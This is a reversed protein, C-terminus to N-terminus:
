ALHDEWPNRVAVGARAFPEADRTVVTLEHHLAIAAIVLDPQPYTYGSRRGDQELAKWLLWVNEDASLIRGQFLPRGVEELWNRMRNRRVPDSVNEIGFRLEALVVDSIYLSGKDIESFFRTVRRDPHPKDLESLINTDILFGAGNM